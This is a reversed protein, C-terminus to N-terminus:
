GRKCTNGSFSFVSHSCHSLCVFSECSKCRPVYLVLWGSARCFQVVHYLVYSKGAGATGALWVASFSSILVTQFCLCPPLICCCSVSYEALMLLCEKRM